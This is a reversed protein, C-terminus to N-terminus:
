GSEECRRERVGWMETEDVKRGIDDVRGGGWRGIIQSVNRGVWM